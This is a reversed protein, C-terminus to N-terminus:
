TDWGLPKRRQIGTGPFMTSTANFLLGFLIRSTLPTERRAYTTPGHLSHPQDCGRDMQLNLPQTFILPPTIQTLTGRQPRRFYDTLTLAIHTIIFTAYGWPQTYASGDINFKPEGLGGSGISGSPNTVQQLNAEAVVFNDIQNRLSTDQGSTYRHPILQFRMM